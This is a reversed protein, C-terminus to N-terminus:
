AQKRPSPNLGAAGPLERREKPEGKPSRPASSAASDTLRPGASTLAYRAGLPRTAPQSAMAGRRVGIAGAGETRRRRPLRARRYSTGAGSAATASCPGGSWVEIPAKVWGVRIFGADAIRRGMAVPSRIWATTLGNPSTRARGVKIEASRCGGIAVVAEEIEESTISDNLGRIRLECTKVPRTVRVGLEPALAAMAEHLRDARAENGEGPIEMLFARTVAM